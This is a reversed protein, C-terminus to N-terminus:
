LAAGADAPPVPDGTRQAESGGAFLPKVPKVHEGEYVTHVGAQVVLDGNRLGTVLVSRDRYSHVHVPRLELTSDVGRVLWVAPEQGRHFLATAPITFTQSAAAPPAGHAPALWADGTMGLRIAPSPENLTLKVRYTRSQPDASPSVERVRAEFHQGPLATLIVNATQGIPFGGVDAAAADLLLDLDGSWALGFVPQGSAVVQGTDANESTILGDHDAVLTQYQLNNRAIVLQAAAQERAALAASYADQTAEFQARAVLNQAIQAADRDLQQKAFTQRHDAAAFAAEAAVLQKKADLPDLRAVVQGKRVTDGLRVDREILKGPVRFSMSNAYRSAVEVPYHLARGPGDGDPQAPLAVVLSPATEAPKARRTALALVTTM